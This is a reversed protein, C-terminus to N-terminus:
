DDFMGDEDQGKLQGAAQKGSVQLYLQYAALQVHAPVKETAQWTMKDVFFYKTTSGNKMTKTGQQVTVVVPHAFYNKGTSGKATLLPRAGRFSTRSLRLLAPGGSTMCVFNHVESGLPQVQPNDQDWYCKRCESCLGYVDGEKGDRAICTELGEYRPDNDRPFLINSRYHHVVLLRLPGEPFVENTSSLLWAGPKAGEVGNTVAESQGQLLNITPVVLDREHIDPAHIEPIGEIVERQSHLPLLDTGPFTKPEWKILESM